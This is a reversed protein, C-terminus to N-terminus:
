RPAIERLSVVFGKLDPNAAVLRERLTSIAAVQKPQFSGGGRQQILSAALSAMMDLQERTASPYDDALAMTVDGDPTPVPM